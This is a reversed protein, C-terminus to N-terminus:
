IKSYFLSIDKKSDTLTTFPSLVSLFMAFYVNGKANHELINKGVEERGGLCTTEKKTFNNELHLFYVLLLDLFSLRENGHIKYSNFAFLIQANIGLLINWKKKQGTTM